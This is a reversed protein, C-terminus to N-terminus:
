LLRVAPLGENGGRHEILFTQTLYDLAESFQKANLKKARRLLVSRPVWGAKLAESESTRMSNFDNEKLYGELEAAHQQVEGGHMYDGVFALLTSDSARVFQRAWEVHEPTIVPSAPNDYVALVGAIREAKEYSRIHLAKAFASKTAQELEYFENLLADLAKDAADDIAITTAEGRFALQALDMRLMAAKVNNPMAVTKHTRHPKLNRKSHVFLFRGLLGDAINDFKLSEGLKEPTAFGLFNVAPHKVTRGQVGTKSRCFYMGRSDTFLALLNGAFEIMYGQAGSSNMGGFYHAVENVGVLLGRYDQLLDEFGQGSAMKGKVDAGAANALSMAATFPAEKGAGTCAIGCGYLNLRAGNPLMFYAGCGAAMAILVALTALEPQPKNAAALVANVADAMVGRFPAPVPAPDPTAQTTTTSTAVPPPASVPDPPAVARIPTVTALPPPEPQSKGNFAVLNAQRGTISKLYARGVEEKAFALAKGANDNRHDLAYQWLAPTEIITALVDGQSAGSDILKILLGHIIASRDLQGTGTVLARQDESLWPLTALTIPQGGDPIAPAVQKAVRDSAKNLGRWKTFEDWRLQKLSRIYDTKDRWVTKDRQEVVDGTITLFRASTGFYVEAHACGARQVKLSDVYEVAWETPVWAFARLGKGSPSREWYTAFPPAFEAFDVGDFDFGVLTEEGGSNRTIGGTMVIGVGPLGHTAAVAQAEALTLWQEPNTTSLNHIGNYPIKDFGDGKEKPVMKYPVFIRRDEIGKFLKLLDIM